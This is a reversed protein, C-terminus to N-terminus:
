ATAKNGHCRRGSNGARQTSESERFCILGDSFDRLRATTVLGSNTWKMHVRRFRLEDIQFPTDLCGSPRLVFRHSVRRLAHLERGHLLECAVPRGAIVPALYFRPQVSQRLEDSLDIPEVNMEDVNTRFLLIRQRNDDRV